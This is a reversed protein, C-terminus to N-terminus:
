AATAPDTRALWWVSVLHVVAIIPAAILVFVNGQVAAIPIDALQVLGAITLLTMVVARNGRALAVIVAGSLIIGRVAYYQAYAATEPEGGLGFSALLIVAAGVLTLAAALTNIVLILWPRKM